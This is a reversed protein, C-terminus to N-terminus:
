LPHYRNTLWRGLQDAYHPSTVDGSQGGPLIEFATVGSPLMEALFRRAPGHAFMFDNPGTARVGHIAADVTGYGGSRAVGPLNPAVDAFGGATPVDFPAGLPHRFVIRHLRGWRYDLQNTSHNYAAAYADGALADLAEQLSRLLIVDRAEEPSAAGAVEFFNLGSAGVGHATPFTEILNRMAAMSASDIPTADALGVRALTADITNAMVRARWVGYITAAVSARVETETPEPLATPDDGPDYGERLGTPSSFDWAALRGVAEVVRPDDGLAALDVSAGAADASEFAALIAPVLAEADLMQDNAQIAGMGDLTMKGGGALAADLLRAIRGVRFGGEYGVNLYYVGVDPLVTNLPDNDVTTGVPDNNGNAIYGKEPNFDHPMLDFPMIRYPLSQDGPRRKQKAWENRFQHSGDRVLYPPAGDARGLKALDERLPLEASTRYGINGDVDAYGFNLTPMDIFKVAATFEDFNGARALLLFADLERTAGWGTYQISLGTLNNLGGSSDVAVIPGNNRRPVVYTIGGSGPLVEVFAQDDATGNGPLNARFEQAIAVLKEKKNGYTTSKLRGRRFDFTLKEQYVDTVDLPNYTIGWAVRDNVGIVIAPTGPFSVGAVNMPGRAPDNTVTLRAEYFVPALTLDLHPDSALLAAGSASKAGSVVWWNSGSRSESRSALAALAPVRRITDLYQRALRATEPKIAPVARKEARKSAGSPLDTTVTPDFPASRYTDEFFLKTGDFGGAAGAAQFAGLAATLDIDRLDFSQGFALGKAATITDLATWPEISAKTLELAAYEPPLATMDAVAANVGDAYADVLALTSQPYADVSAEAARRLGLTRLQIDSEIAPAGLLEGLTGSLQHRLYDMQFLRDQAHAYGLLRVAEADTEATIHPVGDADRVIGPLGRPAASTRTVPTTPLAPLLCVGALVFALRRM